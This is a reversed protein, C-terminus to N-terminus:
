QKGKKDLMIEKLEECSQLMKNKDISKGEIVQLLKTDNLYLMTSIGEILDCRCKGSVLVNNNKLTKELNGSMYMVMGNLRELTNSTSVKGKVIVYEGCKLIPALNATCCSPPIDSEVQVEKEKDNVTISPSVPNCAIFIFGISLLVMTLYSKMKTKEKQKKKIKIVHEQQKRLKLFYFYQMQFVMLSDEGVKKFIEELYVVQLDQHFM